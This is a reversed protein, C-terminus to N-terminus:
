RSNYLENDDGRLREVVFSIKTGRDIRVINLGKSYLHKLRNNVNSLGINSEKMKGEHVKKIIDEDIGIGNDEITIRLHDSDIKLVELIIADKVNKDKFGHKVSNEVLPQIILSPIQIDINEDVITILNIKDGFRAKEIEIYAKVQELEKYVSVLRNGLELNYRLYTSLNIILERAKYPKNRVFSAITNLANFLFHPNIQNQLAKIEARTAMKELEGVKSIELQTSILQSLGVALNLDRFSVVGKKGYYIKLAGVVENGDRLPAIIGSKIPCSRNPCNIEKKDTLKLIKGSELAKFTSKTQIYKGKRHHDDGIGVHALVKEKDTIAVADAGVSDKIIECVKEYSEDNVNRFYPLTKNAIELALQAQNAAISEKEYFTMQILKIMIWIGIANTFSMPFYISKVIEVAQNFPRSIILILLMEISEMTIGAVFGYISKRDDKTFKFIMGSLIGAIITAISCPISTIGHIDYLLRYIGAIIGSVIGVFPGCLIGGAMVGILRTNAIAGNVDTGIHTSIIGFGGFLLSLIITDKKTFKDSQIIKKFRNLRTLIFVILIVYGLNNILTRLLEIM